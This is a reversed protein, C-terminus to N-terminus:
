HGSESTRQMQHKNAVAVRSLTGLSAVCQLERPMTRALPTDTDVLAHGLELGDDRAENSCCLALGLGNRQVLDAESM